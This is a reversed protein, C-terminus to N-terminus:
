DDGHVNRFLANFVASRSESGLRMHLEVYIIPSRQRGDGIVANIKGKAEVREDVGFVVNNRRVQQLERSFQTGIAYPKNVM